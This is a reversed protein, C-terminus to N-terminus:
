EAEATAQHGAATAAIDLYTQPAEVHMAGTWGFVNVGLDRVIAILDASSPVVFPKSGTLSEVTWIPAGKVILDAGSRLHLDYTAETVALLALAFALLRGEETNEAFHFHRLHAFGIFTAGTISEFTVSPNSKSPPITGLGGQSYASDTKSGGVKESGPLAGFPDIRSGLRPAVSVGLAIIESTVVRASRAAASNAGTKSRTDLLADLVKQNSTKAGAKLKGPTSSWWGFLVSAPFWRLLADADWVTADHVAEVEGETILGDAVAQGQLLRWHADAHRHPWDLSTNRGGVREVGDVVFLPYDIQDAVLKLAAEMRNAQSAVSDVVIAQKGDSTRFLGESKSVDAKDLYGAPPMVTLGGSEFETVTRIGANDRDALM